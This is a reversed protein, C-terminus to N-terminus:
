SQKLHNTIQCDRGLLIITEQRSITLSCQKLPMIVINYWSKAISHVWLCALRKMLTKLMLSM